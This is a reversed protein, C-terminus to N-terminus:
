PKRGYEAWWGQWATSEWFFNEAFRQKLLEIPGWGATMINDSRRQGILDIVIPVTDTKPTCLLLATCAWYRCAPSGERAMREYLPVCEAPVAGLHYPVIRRLIAASDLAQPHELALKVLEHQTLPAPRTIDYWRRWELQSQLDTRGTIWRLCRLSSERAHQQIHIEADSAAKEIATVPSPFRNPYGSDVGDILESWLAEGNRGELKARASRFTVPLDGDISAGLIERLDSAAVARLLLNIGPITEQLREIARRRLEVPHTASSAYALLIDRGEPAQSLISYRLAHLAVKPDDLWHRIAPLLGPWYSRILPSNHLVNLLAADHTDGLSILFLVEEHGGIMALVSAWAPLLAPPSSKARALVFGRQRSDLGESSVWDAIAGALEREVAPSLRAHTVVDFARDLSRKRLESSGPEKHIARITQVAHVRRPDDPDHEVAQILSDLVRERDSLLYLFEDRRPSDILDSSWALEPGASRAAELARAVHYRWVVWPVVTMGGFLLGLIAVVLLLTRLRFRPWRREAVIASAEQVAM